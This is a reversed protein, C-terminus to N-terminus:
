QGITTLLPLGAARDVCPVVIKMDNVSSSSASLELTQVSSSDAEHM